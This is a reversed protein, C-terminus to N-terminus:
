PGRVAPHPGRRWRLVVWVVPVAIAVGILGYLVALGVVPPLWLFSTVTSYNGHYVQVQFGPNMLIPLLWTGIVQELSPVFVSSAQPGEGYDPVEGVISITSLNLAILAMTSVLYADGHAPDFLIQNADNPRSCDYDVCAPISVRGELAYTGANFVSVTSANFTSVLLQDSARSFAIAMAWSPLPLSLEVAGTAPNVVMLSANSSPIILSNSSVDYAFPVGFAVAWGEPPGGFWAGPIRFTGVVTLNRLNIMLVSDGGGAYVLGNSPDYTMTSAGIADTLNGVIAGTVYNMVLIYTPRDAGSNFCPVLVYEGVGPYYPGWPGCSINQPSSYQSTSANYEFLANRTHNLFPEKLESAIVLHAPPVYTLGAPVMCAGYATTGGCYFNTLSATGNVTQSTRVTYFGDAIDTSGAAVSSRPSVAEIPSIMWFGPLVLLVVVLATAASWGPESRVSKM